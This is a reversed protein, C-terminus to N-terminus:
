RNGRAYHEEELLFLVTEVEDIFYDQKAWSILTEVQDVKLKKPSSINWVASILEQLQEESIQTDIVNNLVQLRKASAVSAGQHERLASIRTRGQALMEPSFDRPLEMELTDQEEISDDEGPEVEEDFARAPVRMEIIRTTAPPERWGEAEGEREEQDDEEPSESGQDNGNSSTPRPEAPDSGEPSAGAEEQAPLRERGGTAGPANGALPQDTASRQAAIMVKLRDLADRLNVGQLSRKNLMQMAQRADLDLNERIYKIFESISLNGSSDLTPGLTLPMSAGINPRTPPVTIEERAPAPPEPRIAVEPRKERLQAPAPSTSQPATAPAPSSAPRKPPVPKVAAAQPAVASSAPQSPTQPPNQGRGASPQSVQSVPPQVPTLVQSLRQDIHQVMQAMGAEAERILQERREASAGVPVPVSIEITQTQGDRQLETAYRLWIYPGSEELNQM